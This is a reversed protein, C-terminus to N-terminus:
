TPALLLGGSQAVFEAVEDNSILAGGSAYWAAALGIEVDAAELAAVTQAVPLQEKLLGQGTWRRLSDLMQHNSHRLTPHQMWVDIVPM